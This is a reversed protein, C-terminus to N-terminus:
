IHILSLVLADLAIEAEADEMIDAVSVADLMLGDSDDRRLAYILGALDTGVPNAASDWVTTNMTTNGDYPLSKATLPKTTDGNKIWWKLQDITCTLMSGLGNWGREYSNLYAKRASEEDPFALMIKHEDFRGTKGNQNIVYVLESEPWPGIFVDLPDGDAGRTGTLEGYHAQSIVSWPEGDSKGVRRNGQATEIAIRLGHLETRGKRYNGSAAQAQTPHAANRAASIIQAFKDM